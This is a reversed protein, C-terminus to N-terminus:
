ADSEAEPYVFYSRSLLCVRIGVYNSVSVLGSLGKNGSLASSIYSASVGMSEALQKQTLGRARMEREVNRRLDVSAAETAEIEGM